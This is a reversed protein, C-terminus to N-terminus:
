RLKELSINNRNYSCGVIANALVKHKVRYPSHQVEEAYRTLREGVGGRSCVGAMWSDTTPYYLMLRCQGLHFLIFFAKFYKHHYHNLTARRKSLLYIFYAVIGRKFNLTAGCPAGDCSPRVNQPFMTELSLHLGDVYDEEEAEGFAKQEQGIKNGYICVCHKDDCSFGSTAALLRKVRQDSLCFPFAPM